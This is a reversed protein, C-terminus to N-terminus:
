PTGFVDVRYVICSGAGTFTVRIYKAAAATWTFSPNATSIAVNNVVNTFTTNDISTDITVNTPRLAGSPYLAMKAGSVKYSYKLNYTITAPSSTFKTRPDDGSGFDHTKHEYGLYKEGLLDTVDWCAFNNTVDTITAQGSAIESIPYSSTVQKANNSYLSVGMIGYWSPDNCSLLKFRICTGTTASFTHDSVRNNNGTISVVPTGSEINTFSNAVWIKYDKAIQSDYSRFRFRYISQATPLTIDLAPTLSATNNWNGALYKDLLVQSGSPNNSATVTTGPYFMLNVDKSSPYTDPIGSLTDKGSLDSPVGGLEVHTDAYGVMTKGNHRLQIDKSEYYMSDLTAKYTSDAVTAVHSGDAILSCQSADPTLDGLTHGAWSNNYVYSKDGVPRDPCRIIKASTIGNDNWWTASAPSLKEDNEQSYINMATLMQKLNNMCAVQRAKERAKSFVPFLIAALIAIIAIVVLLEILTFGRNPLRSTKM